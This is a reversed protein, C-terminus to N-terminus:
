LLLIDKKLLITKITNWISNSGNNIGMPFPTWTIGTDNSYAFNNTITTGQVSVAIMHGNNENVAVCKWSVAAASTRIIWDNGYIGSYTEVYNDYLDTLNEFVKKNITVPM